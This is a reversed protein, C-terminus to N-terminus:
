DAIWRDGSEVQLFAAQDCRIHRSKPALNIYLISFYRHSGEHPRSGHEGPFRLVEPFVGAITTSAYNVM